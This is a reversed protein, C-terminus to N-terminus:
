KRRITVAGQDKYNGNRSSLVYWYVGDPVDEGNWRDTLGDMFHVEGGARNYLLVTYDAPNIDSRWQILWTDNKGNHDPTFVEPIFIPLNAPNIKVIVTDTTGTCIKAKPVILFTAIGPTYSSTLTALNTIAATLGADILATSDELQSFTVSGQGTVSWFFQTAPADSLMLFRISDNGSVTGPLQLPLGDPVPFVTVTRLEEVTCGAADAIVFKIIDNDQLWDVTDTKVSDVLVGNVYWSYVVGGGGRVIIDSGACFTDNPEVFLATNTPGPLVRILTSATGPCGSNETFSITFFGPSTNALSVVGTSDNTFVLTDQAVDPDFSYIGSSGSQLLPLANGLDSKCFETTITSDSTMYQLFDPTPEDVQLVYRLVDNCINSRVFSINYTGEPTATLSVRGTDRDLWALSAPSSYFRGQGFLSSPTLVAWCSDESSCFINDQSPNPPPAIFNLSGTLSDVSEITIVNRFDGVCAGTTNLLEMVITISTDTLVNAGLDLQGTQQSLGLIPPISYFSYTGPLINPPINGPILISSDNECFNYTSYTFYPNFVDLITISFTDTAPCFGGTRYQVIHAGGLSADLNILGTPSISLGSLPLNSFTGGGTGLIAPFPNPDAQCYARPIYAFSPDEEPSITVYDEAVDTCTALVSSRIVRYPGGFPLSDTEIANASMGGPFPSGSMTEISWTDIGNSSSIGITYQGSNQCITDDALAFDAIPAQFIKIGVITDVGACGGGGSSYYVEFTGTNSAILDIEGTSDDIVLGSQATFVGGAAGSQFIPFPNIGNECYDTPQYVITASSQQLISVFGSTSDPCFADGNTRWIQYPGGVTSTNTNIVGTSNNTFIIAPSPCYFIGTNASILNCAATGSGICPSPSPVTFLSAIPQRIVVTETKLVQCGSGAPDFQITYTGPTSTLLNIQGSTSDIVLGLGATQEFAGGNAPLYTISSPFGGSAQGSCYVSDYTFIASDLDIISLNTTAAYGCSDANPTYTILYNGAATSPSLIVSGTGTNLGTLSPSASFVGNLNPISITPRPVSDLSKCYSAAGYAITPSQMQKVKVSGFFPCGLTTQLRITHFLGDAWGSHLVLTGNSPNLIANNAPGTATLDSYTGTGLQQLPSPNAQGLCFINNSGYDITQQGAITMTVPPSYGCSVCLVCAGCSPYNDCNEDDFVYVEYSGDGFTCPIRFYISDTAGDFGTYDYNQLQNNSRYRFYPGSPLKKFVLSDCNNNNWDYVRTGYIRISQGRQYSPVAPALGNVVAQGFVQGGWCGIVLLLLLLLKKSVMKMDGVIGKANM